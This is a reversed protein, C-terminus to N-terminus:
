RKADIYGIKSSHHILQYLDLKLFLNATVANLYDKVSYESDKGTFVMLPKNSTISSGGMLFPNMTMQLSEAANPKQSFNILQNKAIEHQQLYYPLPIENQMQTPQHYDTNATNQSHVNNNQSVRNPRPQRM